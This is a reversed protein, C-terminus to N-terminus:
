PHSEKRHEPITPLIVLILFAGCFCWMLLDCGAVYAQKEASRVAANAIERVAMPVTAAEARADYVHHAAVISLYTSRTLAAALYLSM